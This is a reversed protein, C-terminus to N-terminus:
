LSAVHGLLTITMTNTFKSYNLSRIEDAFLHCLKAKLGPSVGLGTNKGELGCQRM